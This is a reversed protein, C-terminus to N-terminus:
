GQFYRAIRRQIEKDLNKDRSSYSQGIYIKEIKTNNVYITNDNEMMVKTKSMNM